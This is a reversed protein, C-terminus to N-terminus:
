KLENMMGPVNQVQRTSGAAWNYEKEMLTSLEAQTKGLRIFSQVRTTLKAVNDRYAVLGARNMIAGHGPIVIDFDYAALVKDYTKVMELLSGSGNYDIGPSDGSVLVGMSVAKRDPFYVVADGNTHGRGFYRARVEAGGLFVSTEETFVVQAAADNPGVPRDNPRGHEVIHKRTNLTSIIQATPLFKANGGSHDEHYHTTFVYKVPQSTVTKIAAILADHSSDHKGDVIIVGENTVRVATNAGDGEIEYFNEHLKIIKLELPATQSQTYAACAVLVFLGAGAGINRIFRRRRRDPCFIRAM